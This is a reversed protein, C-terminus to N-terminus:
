SRLETATKDFYDPNIEVGAFKVGWEHAAKMSSAGGMFPDYILRTAGVGALICAIWRWPKVHEHGSISSRKDQKYVDSFRVTRHFTSPNAPAPMMSSARSTSWQVDGFVGCCKHAWDPECDRRFSVGGCDWILQHRMQWGLSLASKIARGARSSDYMVLLVRCFSPKPMYSWLHKTQYPPDFIVTDPLNGGLAINRVNPDTSDGCVIRARDTEVIEGSFTPKAHVPPAAKRRAADRIANIERRRM